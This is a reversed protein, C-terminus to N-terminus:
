VAEGVLVGAEVVVLVPEGVLVGVLVLLETTRVGEGLRLTM